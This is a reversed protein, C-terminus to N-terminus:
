SLDAWTAGTKITIPFPLACHIGWAREVKDPLENALEHLVHSIWDVADWDPCDFMVSDHVSNIVVCRVDYAPAEVLRRFLDGRFVAMVDGTAFGQIPYNKMETPSFSPEGRFGDYEKFRYVRGTPSEYDSAGQPMGSATHGLSPRRNAIVSAALEDQWAKVVRYRSYYLSIFSKALAVPIKNTAAMSAAGAGYQLQFSLQKAIRRQEDTITEQPKKYLESARLRHMDKGSRIDDILIPDGSLIALGVVELQSFDAELLIGDEGFRSVFCRKINSM